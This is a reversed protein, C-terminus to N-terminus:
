AQISNLKEIHKKQGQQEAFFCCIEMKLDSMTAHGKRGQIVMQRM